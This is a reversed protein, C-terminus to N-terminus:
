TAEVSEGDAPAEAGTQDGAEAELALDAVPVPEGTGACTPCTREAHDFYQGPVAGSGNCTACKEKKSAMM